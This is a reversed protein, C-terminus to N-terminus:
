IAGPRKREIVSSNEIETKLRKFTYVRGNQIFFIRVKINESNARTKEITKNGNISSLLKLLIFSRTQPYNAPIFIHAYLIIKNIDDQTSSQFNCEYISTTIRDILNENLIIQIYDSKNLSSFKSGKNTWKFHFLAM